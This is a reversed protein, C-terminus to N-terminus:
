KGGHPRRPGREDGAERKNVGNFSVLMLSRRTLAKKVNHYSLVSVSRFGLSPVDTSTGVQPTLTTGARTTSATAM